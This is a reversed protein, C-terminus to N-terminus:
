EAEFVSRGKISCNNAYCLWPTTWSVAGHSKIAGAM